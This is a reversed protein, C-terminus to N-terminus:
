PLDDGEVKTWGQAKAITEGKKRTNAHPKYEIPSQPQPAPMGGGFIAAAALEWPVDPNSKYEPMLVVGNAAQLPADIRKWQHPAAAIDLPSVYLLKPYSTRPYLRGTSLGMKRANGNWLAQALVDGDSPENEPTLPHQTTDGCCGMLNYGGYRNTMYQLAKLEDGSQRAAISRQGGERYHVLPAVIHLGCLGSLRLRVYFDADEAGQLVEDFGGIARVAHTPIVATVLHFTKNTWADCPEPATHVVNNIGLWDTYVYRQDTKQAAYQALVGLTVEAFHPDLTDDADLFTCYEGTAQELGRNRAWGSGNGEMDDIVIVECDVTQANVSAVAQTVIQSHYPGCPIIISLHTM